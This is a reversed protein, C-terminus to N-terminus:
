KQQLQFFKLLLLKSAQVPNCSWRRHIRLLKLSKRQFHMISWTINAVENWKWNDNNFGNFGSWMDVLLSRWTKQCVVPFKLFTHPFVNHNVEALFLLWVASSLWMTGTDCSLMDVTAWWAWWAWLYPVKCPRVNQKIDTQRKCQVYIRALVTQETRHAWTTSFVHFLVHELTLAYLRQLAEKSKDNSKKISEIMQWRM